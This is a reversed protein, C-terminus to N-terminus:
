ACMSTAFRILVMDSSWTTPLPLQVLVGDGNQDANLKEIQENLQQQSANSPLQILTSKMGLTNCAKEKNRVYVQSATLDGVLVVVLHPATGRRKVLSQIRPILLNRRFESVKRGDLILM